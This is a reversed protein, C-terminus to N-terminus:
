ADPRGGAPRGPVTLGPARGRNPRRTRRTRGGPRHGGPRRPLSGGEVAVRQRGHPRPLRGGPDTRGPPRAHPDPAPAILRYRMGAGEPVAAVVRGQSPAPGPTALAWVQHDAQSVLEMVSGRFVLRGKALVALYRCTQAVDEVIHTSLLVTREGALQSLLTGRVQELCTDVLHGVQPHGDDAPM